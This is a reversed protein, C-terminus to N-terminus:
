RHPAPSILKGTKYPPNKLTRVRGAEQTTLWELFIKVASERNPLTSSKLHIAKRDLIWQQLDRRNVAALVDDLSLGRYREGRALGFFCTKRTTHM